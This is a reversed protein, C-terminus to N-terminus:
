FRYWRFDINYWYLFILCVSTGKPVILSVKKIFIQWPITFIKYEREYAINNFSLTYYLPERYSNCNFFKVVTVHKVCPKFTVNDMGISWALSLPFSVFFVSSPKANSLFGFLFGREIFCLSYFHYKRQSHFRLFCQCLVSNTAHVNLFSADKDKRHFFINLHM